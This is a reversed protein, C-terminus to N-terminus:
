GGGGGDGGGIGGGTKSPGGNEAALLGLVGELGSALSDNFDTAPRGANRASPSTVSKNAFDVGVREAFSRLTRETGLGYTDGACAYYHDDPGMGQAWPEELLNAEGADDDNDRPPPAPAGVGLLRKLRREAGSEELEAEKTSVAHRDPQRSREDRAQRFSPRHERSWLHYVVTQPPAFFDWGRTYMRAAMSVEEGFFTYRLGPDYPVELLLASGSFSFGSAWLPSPMPDRATRLLLRGTQRLMGEPGFGDPVLLTPRTEGAPIKHPLQYGVPYTTLVPKFSPCRQLTRILYTDWGPRFRTHSDIQLVYKEGKWLSQAVRRAWTPGAADTAPMLLSRVRGGHLEDGQPTERHMCRDGAVDLDLQWVVGVSVRSPNSARAFLDVISPNAESDRYSVVSVFISAETAHSGVGGGGGSTPMPKVRDRTDDGPKPQPPHPPRDSTFGPAPSAALASPASPLGLQRGYFWLTVALRPAFAPLVEHDVLDSRFLVLRDLVPEIDWMRGGSRVGADLAGGKGEGRGSAIHVRLQGGMSEEWDPNLYYLATIKREAEESDQATKPTDRHRVYGRGDGPYRALQVSTTNVLGLGSSPGSDDGGVGGNLLSKLDTMCVLLDELAEPLEGAARLGQTIWLISDGRSQKGQWLGDGRGMRAPKMDGGEEVELAAEYARLAQARGLFGDKIVVCPSGAAAAANSLSFLDAPSLRPNTVQERTEGEGERRVSSLPLAPESPESADNGIWSLISAQLKVPLAM